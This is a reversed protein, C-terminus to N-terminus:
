LLGLQHTECLDEFDQWTLNLWPDRQKLEHLTDAKIEQMAHSLTRSVKSESWGLMRVLERQTVGHLYVLRLLVMAEAPCRGFAAHLSDRLIAVLADESAERVPASFRELRNGEPEGPAPPPAEVQHTQRRKLDIWRRTVVTALWGQLTCKGTFKDLLSPRDDAGPVCDAWLDALLDETETPSAGRSRLVGVLAAHYRTRLEGVPMADGHQCRRVLIETHGPSPALLLAAAADPQAPQGQWREDRHQAARSTMMAMM